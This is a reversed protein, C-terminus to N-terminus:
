MRIRKKSNRMQEAWEFIIRAPPQLRINKWVQKKNLPSNLYHKRLYPSPRINHFSFQLNFLNVYTVEPNLYIEVGDIKKGVVQEIGRVIFNKFQYRKKFEGANEKKVYANLLNMCAFFYLADYKDQISILAGMYAKLAQEEDIEPFVADPDSIISLIDMSM